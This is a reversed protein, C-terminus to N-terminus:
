RLEPRPIISIMGNRELVAYKIQDLRELGQAERASDLIDDADVRARQMRDRLLEGNEVLILPVSEFVKAVAKSRQKWLSLGLDATMLTLIAIMGTAISFDEGVLASQTCESIILLLVFDFTTIQNLSRKGLLRFALLLFFYIAICRLVTDM